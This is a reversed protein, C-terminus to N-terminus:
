KSSFVFKWFASCILCNIRFPLQTHPPTCLSLHPALIVRSDMSKALLIWWVPPPEISDDFHCSQCFNVHFKNKCRFVIFQYQTFLCPQQVKPVINPNIQGQSYRPRLICVLTSNIQRSLFLVFLKCENYKYQVCHIIAQTLSIDKPYISIAYKWYEM